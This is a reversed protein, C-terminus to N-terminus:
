QYFEDDGIYEEKINYQEFLHRQPAFDEGYYKKEAKLRLILAKEIDDSSGLYKTHKNIIISAIWKKIRKDWYVGIYGSTNRSSKQQNRNNEKATAPRLNCKRNDLKKRNIHDVIPYNVVLKHIYVHGTKNLNAEAYGHYNENWSYNKIKDYDELDFYFEKGTNNCYGIGYEKSLDYKNGKKLRKSAKEVKFCGCSKTKGSTLQSTMVSIINKEKCSCQCVWKSYHKGAPSIYDDEDQYLVTLKGFTKGTLDNKVKIM